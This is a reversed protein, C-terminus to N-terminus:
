SRVTRTKELHDVICAGVCDGLVNVVTRLRDLFWDITLLLGIDTLPLGVSTLVLTLTVIGAEPIGAAGIAALTATLAVVINEGANLHVGHLQAIFIAAVAEYLATGNMNLTTGLPLVIRTILSDVGVNEEMCKMSIPLTASSSDTGLATMIAPGMRAYLNTYPNKRLIIVYITPLLILLHISLGLIVTTAFISLNGLVDWFNGSGALRAAILSMIGIPAYWMVGMVIKMVAENLSHIVNFLPDGAEGMRGLTVGLVLSFSVVGLIDMKYAAQVLNEPVMSEFVGLISDIITVNQHANYGTDPNPNQLRTGPQISSVLIIGLIVALLTTTAFYIIINSFLKGRGADRNKSLNATAVILSASVLPLVLAKLMRLLLVGPFGLLEVAKKSPDSAGVISGIVFGMIVGILMLVLLRNEKAWKLLYPFHVYRLRNYWTHRGEVLVSFSSDNLSSDNLTSDEQAENSIEM